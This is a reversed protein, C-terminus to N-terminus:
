LAPRNYARYQSPTMGVFKKFQRMFHLENEYGCYEAVARIPMDTKSLYYKSSELRATIVDRICSIGFFETYLKQFYSPSLGLDGATEEISWRKHPANYISSRLHHFAAYYKRNELPAAPLLCQADLSYLLSRVLQDGILDWRPSKAYMESTLLRIYDSFHHVGPLYLPQNMPISLEEPLSPEQIFDFRLWDDKYDSGPSGYQLKTHKKLLIVMNDQTDMRLGNIIFYAPSKVILFLYCPLGADYTIRPDTNHHSDYGCHYIKIM